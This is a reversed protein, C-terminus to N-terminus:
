SLKDILFPILYQYIGRKKDGTRQIKNGEFRVLKRKKTRNQYPPTNGTM